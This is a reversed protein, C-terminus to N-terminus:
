KFHTKSIEKKSYHIFFNWKMQNIRLEKLGMLILSFLFLFIYKKLFFKIVQRVFSSYNKHKFFQPLLIETFEIPRKIIFSKGQPTWGIIM